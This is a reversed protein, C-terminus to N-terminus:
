PVYRLPGEVVLKGALKRPPSKLFEWDATYANLYRIGQKSSSLGTIPTAKQAIKFVEEGQATTLTM